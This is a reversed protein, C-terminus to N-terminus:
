FASASAFSAAQDLAANINVLFLPNGTHKCSAHGGHRGWINKSIGIRIGRVPWVVECYIGYDRPLTERPSTGQRWDMNFEINNFIM